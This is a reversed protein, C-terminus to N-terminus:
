RLRSSFRFKRRKQQELVLSPTEKFPNRQPAEAHPVGDLLAVSFGILRPFVIGCGSPCREPGPVSLQRPNWPPAALPFDSAAGGSPMLLLPTFCAFTCRLGASAAARDFGIYYAVATDGDQLTTVFGLLSDDKRVVTCRFQSKIARALAPLYSQPVTSWDCPQM